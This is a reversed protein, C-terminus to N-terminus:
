HQILSLIRREVDHIHISEKNSNRREVFEVKGHEADKGVVIRVPIGVLDSDKFKVGPREDRDDLLVEIGRDQLQSYLEEAIQMQLRDKVSIPIIHVQFPALAHPWIMGNQDHNQEVIASLIRSIGIGYCGMIMAQNTGSADLFTAGLKESYKTGLKFVHGIEIGRHLVLKGEDCRPCRDGEIVNRLDAVHRLDLDRRPNVHRYHYDQENAGAFGSSMQVVAYDVWVPITLGCPGISGPPTGTAKTVANASAIEFKESGLIQKVKVENVEHDGRVVVAIPQDDAMYILTKIIEKPEIHLTDVLQDITRLGPTYLKEMEDTDISPHSDHENEDFVSSIGISGTSRPEAKELNAAYDCCTCAVITDEGIDALAMFEHTEGEGGIAGADAEVARFNLSCRTFIRQYAQFMAWYTHDLGEWNADFSYADKMLFERSRLLGFRPRREDRFKTQIQYLTVPLKRYSNVENRILSTIVEEHTPGLAFERDHRDQLRMLESGYVDYRGSEQWLETPQLVPMLLEGAGARDMEDRVIQEVKRLVRRGLPMYTYMGAALQRIFGARLMLQHSIVEAEAPAERLTTLLLQSQRM